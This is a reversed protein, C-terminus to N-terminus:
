EFLLLESILKNTITNAFNQKIIREFDREEFQDNANEMIFKETYTLNKILIGNKSISFTTKAILEFDLANGAQDKSFVNKQYDTKTSISYKKEKDLNKYRSLRLNLYNNITTDGKKPRKFSINTEWSKKISGFKDYRGASGIFKVKAVDDKWYVAGVNTTITPKIGEPLFTIIDAEYMTGASIENCKPIVYAKYITKKKRKKNVFNLTLLMFCVIGAGLLIKKLRNKMSIM